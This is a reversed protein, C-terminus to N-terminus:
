EHMRPQIIKHLDCLNVEPKVVIKRWILPKIEMLIIKLQYVKRAM